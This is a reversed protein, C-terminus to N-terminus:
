DDISYGLERIVSELIPLMPGIHRRYNRYRYLSSSYLKQSVQAYSATRAVRANEHFALCRENFPVGAFELLQRVGGELNNVLDEYRIRLFKLGLQDRYHNALRMTLVYHHAVTELQYSGYNGHTFDLFYSSLCSDLPHRVVHIVPSDSFILKVLGLHWENLPMKDTLYKSGALLLGEDRARGLYYDRFETLKLHHVDRALETLCNPYASENSLAAPCHRVIEGLYTLEDGATIDPHAGLIQEVLTTGSRPFGTIFLPQPLDIRPRPALQSLAAIRASTFFDRLRRSLDENAARDYRYGRHALTAENAASLTEFAEDYRQLVDLVTGREFLWQRRAAPPVDQSMDVADLEALAQQPQKCRRKFKSLVVRAGINDPHAPALAVAKAALEAARNLQHRHEEIAAWASYSKFYNPDLQISKEFAAAAADTRHLLVYARARNYWLDPSGPDIAAAQELVKLAEEARDCQTLLGGLNNLAAFDLPRLALVQRYLSEAEKWRAQDVRLNALNLLQDPDAGAAGAAPALAEAAEDVRGLERLVVALNTRAEGFMPDLTLTARYYEAALEHESAMHAALALVYHADPGRNPKVEFARKLLLLAGAPDGAELRVAGLHYLAGPHAPAEALIKQYGDMAAAVQGQQHWGIAERYQTEVVLHRNAGSGCCAAYSRENGCPCHSVTQPHSM